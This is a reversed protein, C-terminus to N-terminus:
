VFSIGCAPCRTYTDPAPIACSPCALLNANKDKYIINSLEGNSDVEIGEIGDREWQELLDWGKLLSTDFGPGDKPEETVSAVDRVARSPIPKELEPKVEESPTAVPTHTSPNSAEEEAWRAKERGVEEEMERLFQTGLTADIRAITAKLRNFIKTYSTVGFIKELDYREFGEEEETLPETSVLPQLNSPVEEFYKSANIIRYPTEKLGTRTIGIDYKEWSKYFKFLNALHSEFGYSPVGEEPYERGDKGLGINRSLLMTHNKERHWDMRERDIVNMILVQRGEWGREFIYSKDGEKVGNKEIINFIEPYNVQIPYIKKRDVWETSKVRAIIRWMIHDPHEGRDPLICRFKKGNDGVIWSVRTTKATYPTLESNPPGGVARILKMEGTQLGTWQVEEYNSQFSGASNSEAAKQEQEQAYAEFADDTINSM